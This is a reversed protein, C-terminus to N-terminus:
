TNGETDRRRITRDCRRLRLANATVLLSSLSMGIAALWPAIWGAAALPIAIANYLLAWWLNQRVIMRTKKASAFLMPVRDLHPTLLICDANTKALQSAGSMAVSIDAAALVPIDNIGDGVMMVRRKDGQLGAIYELKHEPSVGSKVCDIHLQAAFEAAADSSDGSLLHVRLGRQQLTRVTAAADSRLQDQLRFWCLPGANDALLIWQGHAPASINKNSLALAFAASGLRYRRGAIVGEVGAGIHTKRELAPVVAHTAFAQAIPHHSGSELAEAIDRCVEASRDGCPVNAVVAVRGESLTGTKDFVIDTIHGLQEWVDARTVLLGARRLANTATTIAMPTALSLACPCSVVLVSLTIWLARQPDLWHWAAFTLTALAIISVTFISAIRDALQALRPKWQQAQRTLQQIAAIRLQTGVGSIKFTLPSEGNITGALLLAGRTKTIPLYEGSIAAENLTAMADRLYGDAPLTEGSRVLVTAGVRLQDVPVINQRGDDDLVVAASPLLNLLDASYSHRYHRARMELYRSGLLLFIFMTISDFYVDGNQQVTAVVSAIFALLLALAIPMDMGPKHARVSRWAGIFFPAGAYILVPFTVLLSIWRLFNRYLPEIGDVAGAYLGLALMSVQMMGIGAVGLQRLMKRQEHQRLQEERDRRYPEPRYGIAAIAACIASLKTQEEDWEITGRQGDFDIEVKKVGHLRQLRQELLWVCAACHMGGILLECQRLGNALVTSSRQLFDTQDLYTFHESTEISAPQTATLNTDASLNNDRYHGSSNRYRYYNELGCASITEVVAKCGPCCVSQVGSTTMVTFEGAATIPLGCHYCCADANAAKTATDFASSRANFTKM